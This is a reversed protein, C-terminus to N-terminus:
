QLVVRKSVFSDKTRIQVMYIGRPYSSLDLQKNYEGIFAQKNEQTILKGFADVIIIEFNDLEEAVFVINFIGRTPNPFINLNDALDTDGTTIRSGSLTTFYKFSSFGSKNSGSANCM